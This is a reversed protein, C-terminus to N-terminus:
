NYWGSYSWGYNINVWICYGQREYSSISDDLEVILMQICMYTTRHNPLSKISIGVSSDSISRWCQNFTTYIPTFNILFGTTYQSASLQTTPLVRYVTDLYLSMIYCSHTNRPTDPELSTLSWSESHDSHSHGCQTCYALIYTSPWPYEPGCKPCHRRAQVYITTLTLSYKTALTKYLDTLWQKNRSPLIFIDTLGYIRNQNNNHHKILNLTQHRVM